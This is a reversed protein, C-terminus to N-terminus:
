RRGEDNIESQKKKKEKKTKQKKAMKKIYRKEKKPKHKLHPPQSNKEKSVDIL